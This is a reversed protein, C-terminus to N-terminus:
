PLSPEYVTTTTVAVLLSAAACVMVIRSLSAARMRRKTLSVFKACLEGLHKRSSM